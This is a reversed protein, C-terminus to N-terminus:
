ARWMVRPGGAEPPKPRVRGAASREPLGPVTVPDPVSMMMRDLERFFVGGADVCDDRKGDKGDFTLLQDRLYPWWAAGKPVWVMGANVAASFAGNKAIKDGVHTCLDFRFLGADGHRMLDMVHPEIARGAPGGECIVTRAGHAKRLEILKRPLQGTNLHGHWLDTIWFRKAADRGGTVCASEDNRTDETYATDWGQGVWDIRPPDGFNIKDVEFVGGAPQVDWDGELWAKVLWAPGSAALAARYEPTNVHPNDKLRAPIFVRESELVEVGGGEANVEFRARFPTMPRAPAVYREKLWNHGPGGPNATLMFQHDCGKARLTARLKDIPEPKPFNGAEDVAVFSLNWGQYNEADNDNALYALTLVSGDPGHWEHGVTKYRWGIRGLIAVCDRQFDKLQERTRRVVLGRARGGCRQAHALWRLIIFYSKGGGRAGGYLIESVPCRLAWTQPGRNPSAVVQQAAAVV